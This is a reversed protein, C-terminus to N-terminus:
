RLRYYQIFDAGLLLLDDKITFGKDVMYKDGYEVLDLFGSEKVIHKDSVRGGWAKSLFAIRGRPTICVLVKATNHHKYDSHTAVQIALDRPRQIFFETCDLIGRLGKYHRKFPVPLNARINEQPPMSILPRLHYALAKIWTTFIRSCHGTSIKFRDALDEAMIGMKIRMLTLLLEDQQFMKRAPGFKSPSSFFTTFYPVLSFCDLVWLLSKTKTKVNLYLHCQNSSINM